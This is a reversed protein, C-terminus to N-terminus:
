TASRPSATAAALGRKRAQHARIEEVLARSEADEAERAEAETRPAGLVGAKDIVGFTWVDPANAAVPSLDAAASLAAQVDVPAATARRREIEARQLAVMESKRAAGAADTVGFSDDHLTHIVGDRLLIVPAAPDRLPVLFPVQRDGAMEALVPASLTRTGITVAGKRLDRREERSFILDFMAMDQVQQARWGAQAIKAELMAKPSLGKLEGGQPTGNYQAVALQLDAVLRDPGRDYPAVEVGRAKLRKRMPNGGNYGPLASVFTQGLIRFAGEPRGKGEPSYPKCRIVRPGHLDAMAAFRLICDRLFSFESGDDIMFTEPMGGHPCTLVMALSRVVDQQTVAQGPGCIVPLIWMFGSALDMWVIDSLTIAVRGAMAARAGERRIAPDASALAAPITLDTHWVDGCLVEMPRDPLRRRVHFEHKEIFTRHDKDFAAVVKMGHFRRVWNLSVRCLAALLAQPLNCGAERTLRQLDPGCLVQARREAV